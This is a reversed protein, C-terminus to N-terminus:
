CVARHFATNYLRDDKIRMPITIPEIIYIIAANPLMIILAIDIKAAIITSPIILIRSNIIILLPRPNINKIFFIFDRSLLM